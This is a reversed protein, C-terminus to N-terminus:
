ALAGAERLLAVARLTLLDPDGPGVAVFSVTGVAKKKARTTVASM